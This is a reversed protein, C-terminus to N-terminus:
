KNYRSRELASRVANEIFHDIARFFAIAPAFFILPSERLGQFFAKTPGTSM